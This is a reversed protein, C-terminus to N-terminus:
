VRLLATRQEGVGAFESSDASCRFGAPNFTVPVPDVRRTSVAVRAIAKPRVECAERLRGSWVAIRPGLM